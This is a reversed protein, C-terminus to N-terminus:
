LPREAGLVDDPIMEQRLPEFLEGVSNKATFDWLSTSMRRMALVATIWSQTWGSEISWAGWGADASSAWYEWRDFDFARFWGGALEPHTESRIQIRCLFAALRDEAERYSPDGTAFAAEHLALFAFNTTYLLDCASDDNSQILPTETTGYAENSAPPPYGGKDPDGLKERIAGCREQDSLLEDAMRRLWSRHEPTDAARVLWALPLLMKAREQQIGNTWIWRDPYADMTMRIATRARELFPAFGTHRYAWLYCAWLTAQFHPAYSVNTDAFFYRWGTEMLPGQDLRDRQFGYRGSIRLNALLCKALRENYRDTRLAAAALTMGLMSRANDDGYYVAYGDMTGPGCYEPSDNWGMLGYAPHAPDARDGNSIMSRFYLWDGINGATTRYTPNQLFVGALAMSGAIEGNCDNRKWWLATQTGDAFVKANFGELVGLSGDGPPTSLDPMTATRHGYPWDRSEDPDASPPVPENAPRLYKEMMDAHMVMRSNFYWDIGKQVARREGDEPLVAGAGFSPRVIPQWQLQPATVSPRLWGLISRWVTQWADYPAYRGTLFNSLKTTAILVDGRGTRPPLEFLIPHSEEALGYVATDFGAVRGVVIAPDDAAMPVFRCGHIVLIRLRQLDPEFFGSAVVAREWHTGRPAGVTMGPLFSPYEVYLRLGKGAATAFISADLSTLKEPYGDALIMVADGDRATDVAEIPGEVRIVDVGNRSMVGLLDNWSNCAAILKRRM